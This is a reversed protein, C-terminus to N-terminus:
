QCNHVINVFFMMINLLYCILNISAGNHLVDYKPDIHQPGNCFRSKCVTLCVVVKGDGPRYACTTQNDPVVTREPFDGFSFVKGDTCGRFFSKIKGSGAERVTEISCQDGWDHKACSKFLNPYRWSNNITLVEIDNKCYGEANLDSCWYCLIAGTFSHLCAITFESIM